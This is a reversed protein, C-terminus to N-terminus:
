AFVAVVGFSSGKHAVTQSIVLGFSGGGRGQISITVIFQFLKNTRRNLIYLSLTPTVLLYICLLVRENLIIYCVLAM